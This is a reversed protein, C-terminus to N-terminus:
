NECTWNMLWRAPPRVHINLQQGDGKHGSVTATVVVLTDTAVFNRICRQRHGVPEAAVDFKLASGVVSFLSVALVLLSPMSQSPQM